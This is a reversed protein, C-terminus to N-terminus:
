GLNIIQPLEEKYGLIKVDPDFQIYRLAQSVYLGQQVLDKSVVAGAGITISNSITIGQCLICRSGVYVNNGICVSHDIRWRAEGEKSHYFGHTWVQTGIGALISNEGITVNQTLDIHHASGIVSNYGLYFTTNRHSEKENCIANKRSIVAKEGLEVNINGSIKNRNRIRSEKAMKLRRVNIINLSGIVAGEELIVEDAMIISFGIKGKGMIKVGIPLIKVIWISIPSPLFFLIGASIIRGIKM